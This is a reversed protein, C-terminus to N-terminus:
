RNLDEVDVWHDYGMLRITTRQARVRYPIGNEQDYELFFTVRDGRDLGKEVAFPHWLSRLLVPKPHRGTSRTSLQFRWVFGTTDVAEFQMSRDGEPAPFFELAHRPVLLASNVDTSRLEKTFVHM